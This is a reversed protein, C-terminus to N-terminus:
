EIKELRDTGLFKNDPFTYWSRHRPIIMNRYRYEGSLLIVEGKQTDEERYFQYAKLAYTNPDLYFLWIEDGVEPEYTVKIALHRAQLLTTDIVKEDLITGPDTLKMPLGYLYTFYDRYMQVNECKLRFKTAEEASFETSGGLTAYCTDKGEFRVIEKEKRSDVHRFIHNPLDILVRSPSRTGEPNEFEFYFTGQFTGWERQPDHYQISKQLLESATVQASASLASLIIFTFIFTRM